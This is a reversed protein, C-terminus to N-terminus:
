FLDFFKQNKTQCFVFKIQKSKLSIENFEIRCSNRLSVVTRIKQNSCNNESSTRKFFRSVFEYLYGFSILRFDANNM